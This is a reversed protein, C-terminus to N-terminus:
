NRKNDDVNKKKTPITWVLGILAGYLTSIYPSGTIPCSGTRCGIFFYYGFGLVAGAFIPLIKKIKM